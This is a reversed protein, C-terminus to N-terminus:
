RMMTSTSRSSQGAQPRHPRGAVYRATVGRVLVPAAGLVMRAHRENGQEIGMEGVAVLGAVGEPLSRRFGASAATLEMALDHLHPRHPSSESLRLPEMAVTVEGADSATSIDAEM